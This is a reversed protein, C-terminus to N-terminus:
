ELRARVFESEVIPDDYEFNERRDMEQAEAKFIIYNGQLSARLKQAGKGTILPASMMALKYAVCMGVSAALSALSIDIPIIEAEADEKNSLIVKEGGRMEVKRRIHTTRDDKLACSKIRRFFLCNSPYRYSFKWHDTPDEEILELTVTTSTSDLDLDELTTRFAVDYFSNLVKAENSKDTEPEIIQRQLLLASLALNFIKAKTYM